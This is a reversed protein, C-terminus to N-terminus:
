SSRRCFLLKLLCRCVVGGRRLSCSVNGNAPPLPNNYKSYLTASVQEVVVRIMTDTKKKEQDMIDEIEEQHKQQLRKITNHQEKIVKSMQEHVTKIMGQVDRQRYIAETSVKYNSANLRYIIEGGRTMIEMAEGCHYNHAEIAICIRKTTTTTSLTSPEDKSELPTTTYLTWNKPNWRFPLPQQSGQVEFIKVKFSVKRPDLQSGDKYVLHCYMTDVWVNLKDLDVVSVDEIGLITGDNKVGLILVGGGVNLFGILTDKYKQLSTYMAGSLSRAEKYECKNGEGQPMTEGFTWVTPYFDDM